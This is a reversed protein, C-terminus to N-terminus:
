ANAKALHEAYQDQDHVLLSQDPTKEAILTPRGRKVTSYVKVHVGPIQIADQYSQAVTKHQKRLLSEAVKRGTKEARIQERRLAEDVPVHAYRAEVDYGKDRAAKLKGGFKGIRSNGTGDVIIPYNQQMAIATMLKALDSSEEHTAAAAIDSRGLKQLAKYEPIMAKIDDPNIYVAGDPVDLNFEQNSSQGALGSKGSAAGGATFIAKAKGQAPKADAFFHDIIQQHLRQREPPYAGEVQHIKQTDLAQGSALAKYADDGRKDGLSDIITSIAPLSPEATRIPGTSRSERGGDFKGIWKGGRGRPHLAEKFIAEERLRRLVQERARAAAFAFGDCAVKRAAVAEILAITLTQVRGDPLIMSEAPKRGDHITLDSPKNTADPRGDDITRNRITRTGDRSWIPLDYAPVRIRGDPISHSVDGGYGFEVTSERVIRAQNMKKAKQQIQAAQKAATQAAASGKATPTGGVGRPRTLTMANSRAPMKGGSRIIRVSGSSTRGGQRAVRPKPQGAAALGVLLGKTAPGVIGDVKLGYHAQLKRVAAETEPGFKGDRAVRYGAASLSQQLSRVSNGSAGRGIVANGLGQRTASGTTQTTQGPKIRKTGASAATSGASAKGATAPGTVGTTASTGASATGTAGSTTKSTAKTQAQVQAITQLPPNQLVELTADDVKGTAKLGYRQQYQKVAATTAPGYRGDTPVQIGLQRLREQLQATRQDPGSAGTGDGPKVIWLGGRGRPHLQEFKGAQKPQIPGPKKAARGGRAVIKPRIASGPSKLAVTSDAASRPM